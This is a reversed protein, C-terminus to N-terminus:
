DNSQAPLLPPLILGPPLQEAEVKASAKGAEPSDAEPLEPIGFAEEVMHKPKTKEVQFIKKRVDKDDVPTRCLPCLNLNAQNNNVNYDYWKRFCGMHM